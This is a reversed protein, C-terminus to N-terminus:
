KNDLDNRHWINYFGFGMISNLILLTFIKAILEETFHIFGFIIIIDWFLLLLVLRTRYKFITKLPPIAFVMSIFVFILINIHDNNM